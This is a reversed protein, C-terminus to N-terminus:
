MTAEASPSIGTLIRDLIAQWGEWEWWPTGNETEGLPTGTMAYVKGHGLQWVTLIPASGTELVVTAGPKVQVNHYYLNRPKGSFSIGRTIEHDGARRILQTEGEARKLDFKHVEVPLIEGLLTNQYGGHGFARTGGGVFLTGGRYVYERLDKRRLPQLSDGSINLLAVLDYELLEATTAPFGSPLFAGRSSLIEWSDGWEMGAGKLAGELGFYDHWLGRLLHVKKSYGERVSLGSVDLREEELLDRDKAVKLQEMVVSDAWLDTVGHYNMDVYDPKGEKVEYEFAFEQYVGPTHFVTAPIARKGFSGTVTCVADESVNEAVKLRLTARARGPALNPHSNNPGFMARLQAKKILEKDQYPEAALADCHFAYGFMADEDDVLRTGVAGWPFLMIPLVLKGNKPDPALDRGEFSVEPLEEVPIHDCSGSFEQVLIKWSKLEPIKVSEVSGLQLMWTEEEPDLLIVRDPIEAFRVLVDRIPPPQKDPTSNEKNVMKGPMNVLHTIIQYRGQLPRKYTYLKWWLNPIERDNATVSLHDRPKQISRLDKHYLLEGFRLAFRYYLGQIPRYSPHGSSVGAYIHSTSAFNTIYYYRLSFDNVPHLGGSHLMRAFGYHVGGNQHVRLADNRLKMAGIWWNSYEDSFCAGEWLIMGDEACAVGYTDPSREGETEYNPGYNYGFEFDPKREWTYSKMHRTIRTNVRDLSEGRNPRQGDMDYVLGNWRAGLLWHGDFRVGDYGLDECAYLMQDCGFEILKPDSLSIYIPQFGPSHKRDVPHSKMRKHWSKMKEVDLVNLDARMGGMYNYSLWEPHRRAWEAGVSGSPGTNNYMMAKMGLRRAAHTMARITEKSRKYRGQMSIWEDWDTKFGCFECTSGCMIELWTAKMDRMRVPWYSDERTFDAAMERALDIGGCSGQQGLRYANTGVAFVDWGHAVEEGDLELAVNLKVGWADVPANFKLPLSTTEGDKLLVSTDPLAERQTLGYELWSRVVASGSREATGEIRIRAEGTGGPAYVIRDVEVEPNPNADGTQRDVEVEPSPIALGAQGNPSQRLLRVGIAYSRSDPHFNYRYASRVLQSLHRFYGGRVIQYQPGSAAGPPDVQHSGSYPGYRDQCWEWANGHMDYLGWPNPLKTGVAHAYQEGANWANDHYWAYDKLRSEDDGFSWRTTTGARCAYEWEAESPLRYVENGEAQNLRSVLDQVDNWYLYVAPCDPREIVYDNGEWPRTGMTSEWQVQTLEYTGLWFGRSITVEHPPGEDSDRELESPPSGMTFTGPEIWVMEIKADGSLDFTTTDGTMRGPPTDQGQGEATLLLSCILVFLYTYHTWRM